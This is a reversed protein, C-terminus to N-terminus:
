FNIVSRYTFGQRQKSPTVLALTEWSYLGGVRLADYFYLFCKSPCGSLFLRVEQTIFLQCCANQKSNGPILLKRTFCFGKATTPTPINMRHQFCRYAGFHKELKYHLDQFFAGFGSLSLQSSCRSSSVFFESLIWKSLLLCKLIWRNKNPQIWVPIKVCFVKVHTCIM